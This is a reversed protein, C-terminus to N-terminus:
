EDGDCAEEKIPCILALVTSVLVATIVIAFGGPVDSLVPLYRFASSVLAAAIVTVLVGLSRKTVPIIIAIFMAYLSVSLATIMIEPLISGALAGLATGLTWGIYPLLILGYMYYRGVRERNGVAVAFIEDTNIFGFIFKDSLRISKGFRQSLSVSMLAYRSNIVLQTTILELVSGGTAFIPVAALQGASTVNFMSIFLAEYWDLGATVAIIGFGFSVALYGLAIPVGSILGHKFSCDEGNM